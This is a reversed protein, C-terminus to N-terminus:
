ARRTVSQCRYDFPSGFYDDIKAKAPFSVSTLSDCECFAAGGIYNVSDPIYVNKLSRCGYFADNGIFTVRNPISVSTLRTCYAFAFEGIYTVSDSINVSILKDCKEFARTGVSTVGSQIELRTINNLNWPTYFSYQYNQMLGAGSVVLKGADDLTYAVNDGCKGRKIIKSQRPITKQPSSPSKVGLIRSIQRALKGADVSKPSDYFPINYNNIYAYLTREVEFRGIKLFLPTIRKGYEPFSNRVELRVYNSEQAGRDLLLLFVKCQELESLIVKVFDDYYINRTDYWCSIGMSELKRAINRALESMSDSRHYSIFVDAM